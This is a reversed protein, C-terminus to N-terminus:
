VLKLYSIFDNLEKHFKENISVENSEFKVMELRNLERTANETPNFRHRIDGNEMRITYDTNIVESSAKVDHASQNRKRKDRREISRLIVKLRSNNTLLKQSRVLLELSNDLYLEFVADTEPSNEIQKKQKYNKVRKKKRNESITESILAIPLVIALVIVILSILYGLFRVIHIWINGQILRQWFGTENSAQYNQIVKIGDKQGAIKGLAKIKTNTGNEHLLLLSISYNEQGEMILKPLYICGTSDLEVNLNDGLYKNSSGIIQPKDVIDANEIEIKVPSLDDYFGKLITVNSNNIINLSMVSLNKNQKKINIGKYLIDLNKIDENLDLVPTEAEIVFELNPNKDQFFSTYVAIGGFIVALLFGFFSWAWKREINVLGERLSM